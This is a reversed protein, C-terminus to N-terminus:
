GSDGQEAKAEVYAGLSLQYLSVNDKTQAKTPGPTSFFIILSPLLLVSAQRNMNVKLRSRIAPSCWTRPGFPLPGRLPRFVPNGGVEVSPRALVASSPTISSLGVKQGRVLTSSFQHVAIVSAIRYSGTIGRLRSSNSAANPAASIRSAMLDPRSM